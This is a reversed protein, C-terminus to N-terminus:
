IFGAGGGGSGPCNYDDDGKADSKHDDIWTAGGAGGGGGVLVMGLKSPITNLKRSAFSTSDLVETNIVNTFDDNMWDIYIKNDKQSIRINKDYHRIPNVDTTSLGLSSLYNGAKPCTGIAAGVIQNKDIKFYSEAVRGEFANNNPDYFQLRM